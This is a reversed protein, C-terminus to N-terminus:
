WAVQNYSHNFSEIADKDADDFNASSELVGKVIIRNTAEPTDCTVLTVENVGERDDIVYVSEPTVVEIATITYTYIKDKDTLYIKMGEKARELPSFLMQSAGVMSFVHHSALSYNGQGMVQDEKMTGAGYSLETNGLGKFIPLNIGLDPIAIGGIVPLNQAEMQAKLISETSISEVAEFDFSAEKAKNEEIIEKTIQTVQYKNTNWAILTNRISRNFVLALGILLLLLIGLNQLYHKLTKKKKHKM